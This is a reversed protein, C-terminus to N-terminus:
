CLTACTWPIPLRKEIDTERAVGLCFRAARSTQHFCSAKQQTVASVRVCDENRLVHWIIGKRAQVCRCTKVVIWRKSLGQEFRARIRIVGLREIMRGRVSIQDAHLKKEPM